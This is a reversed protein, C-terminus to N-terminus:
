HNKRNQDGSHNAIQKTIEVTGNHHGPENGM